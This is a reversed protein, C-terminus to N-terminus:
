GRHVFHLHPSGSARGRDFTYRVKPLGPRAFTGFKRRLHPDCVPKGSIDCRFMLLPASRGSASKQVVQLGSEPAKMGCKLWLLKPASQVARSFVGPSSELRSGGGQM